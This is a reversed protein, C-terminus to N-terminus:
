LALMVWVLAFLAALMAVSGVMEALGENERPVRAVTHHSNKLACKMKINRMAHGSICGLSETELKKECNNRGGEM